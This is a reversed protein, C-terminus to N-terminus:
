KGRGGVEVGEDSVIATILANPTVDFAPSFVKASAPALKAGGVETV